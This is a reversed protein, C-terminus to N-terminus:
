ARVRRSGRTQSLGRLGGRLCGSAQIQPCLVQPLGVAVGNQGRWAEKGHHLSNWIGRDLKVFFTQEAQPTQSPGGELCTPM